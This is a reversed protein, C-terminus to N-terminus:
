ERRERISKFWYPEITITGVQVDAGSISPNGGERLIHIPLRRTITKCGRGTDCLLSIEIGYVEVKHYRIRHTKNKVPKM